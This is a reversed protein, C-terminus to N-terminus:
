ETAQRRWEGPTTGTSAKFARIFHAASGFGTRWAIQAVQLSSHRLLDRAREMRRKQIWSQPSMGLEAKFSRSFHEVSLDVLAALDRVAVPAGLNEEVHALVKQLRRSAIRTARPPRKHAIGHALQAVTARVTHELSLAGVPSHWSDGHLQSRLAQMLAQIPADQGCFIEPVPGVRDAYRAGVVDALFECDFYLHLVQVTEHVDFEIDAGEPCTTVGGNQAQVHTTRGDKYREVRTGGGFQLVLTNFPHRKTSAHAPAHNWTAIAWHRSAMADRTCAMPGHGLLQSLEDIFGFPRLLLPEPAHM